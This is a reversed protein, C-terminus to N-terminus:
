PVLIRGEHAPVTWSASAAGGAACSGTDRPTTGDTEFAAGGGTCAVRRYPAGLDVAGSSDEPNLLVAGREFRRVLVGSGADLDLPDNPYDGAPAGLDIDYEPWWQIEPASYGMFYVYSRHGRLLYYTSFLAERYAPDGEDFGTQLITVKDRKALKVVNRMSLLVDDRGFWGGPAQFNEVMVGDVLRYDIHYPRDEGPGEREAYPGDLTATVMTDSNAIFYAKKPIAGEEDYRRAVEALFDNARPGWYEQYADRQRGAYGYGTWWDVSESFPHVCVDGFTGDWYDAGGAGRLGAPDFTRELTEDAFYDQWGSQPDTWNHPYEGTLLVPTGEVTRFLYESMILADEADTNPETDSWDGAADINGVSRNYGWCIHYQLLLFNCDLARLQQAVGLLVKQTGAYHDVIWQAEAATPTPSGTTSWVQDAFVVTRDWSDPLPRRVDRAGCEGPGAVDDWGDPTGGDDGDADADPGGGDDGDADGDPAAETGEEAGTDGDAAVEAGDDPAAEGEGAVDGDTTTSDDGCGLTAAFCLASLM